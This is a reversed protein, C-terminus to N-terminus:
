SGGLKGCIYKLARGGGGRGGKVERVVEVLLFFYDVETSLLLQLVALWKVPGRLSQKQYQLLSKRRKVGRDLLQSRMKRAALM